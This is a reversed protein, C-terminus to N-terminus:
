PVVTIPALQLLNTDQTPSVTAPANVVSLRLRATVDMITSSPLLPVLAISVHALGNPTQSAQLSFPRSTLRLLMGPKWTNTQCWWLAPVDVSAVYERGQPSTMVLLMQLPNTIPTIVRWYTTVTMVDSGFSITNTPDVNFGVLDLASSANGPGTFRAQLPHTIDDPSTNIYSCFSDPLNPLVYQLDVYKGPQMLSFPSVGPSPVGRKLLMYGDQAAVMGYQGNLMVGRVARIYDPSNGYPYIDSTVDLFIYDVRDDNYPFLYVSSRHSIHPVLSSQASVSATAPIMDVFRQALLEHATVQPWQFGQSFPMTGRLYDARV